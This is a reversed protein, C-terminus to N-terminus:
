KRLGHQLPERLADISPIMGAEITGQFIVHRL